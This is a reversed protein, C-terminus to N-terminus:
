NPKNSVGGDPRQASVLHLLLCERIRFRRAADFHTSSLLAHPQWQLDSPIECRVAEIRADLCIAMEQSVSSRMGRDLVCDWTEIFLVARQYEFYMHHMRANPDELPLITLNTQLKRDDIRLPLAVDLDSHRILYPLRCSEAVRRELCFTTWLIRQRLHVEFASCSAWSKEDHLRLQFCLKSMSIAADYALEERDAYLLYMTELILCQVTRLNSVRNWADCNLLYEAHQFETWGAVTTTDADMIEYAMVQLTAMILDVMAVIQRQDDARGRGALLAEIDGNMQAENICPICPNVKVMYQQVMTRM